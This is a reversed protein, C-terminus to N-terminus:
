MFLIKCAKCDVRHFVLSTHTILMNRVTSPSPVVIVVVATPKREVLVANVHLHCPLSLSEISVTFMQKCIDFWVSVTKEKRRAYQNTSPVVLNM